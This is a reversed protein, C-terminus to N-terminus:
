QRRKQTKRGFPPSNFRRRDHPLQVTRVSSSGSLKLDNFVGKLCESSDNELTMFLENMELQIFSWRM